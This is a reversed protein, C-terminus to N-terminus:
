TKNTYVKSKILSEPRTHANESNLSKKLYSRDCHWADAIFVVAVLRTDHFEKLVLTTTVKEVHLTVSNKCSMECVIYSYEKSMQLWNVKFVLREGFIFCSYFCLEFQM